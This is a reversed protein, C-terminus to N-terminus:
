CLLIIKNEDDQRSVKYLTKAVMSTMVGFLTIFYFLQDERIVSDGTVVAITIIM